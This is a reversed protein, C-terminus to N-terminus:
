TKSTADVIKGQKIEVKQGRHWMSLYIEKGNVEACPSQEYSEGIGDSWQGQTYEALIDLESQELERESYYTTEVYLKGDRFHFDAYGQNIVSSINSMEEPFYEAFNDNCIAIHEVEQAYYEYDHTVVDDNDYEKKNYNLKAEGIIKITITNNREFFEELAKSDPPTWKKGDMGITKMKMKSVYKEACDDCILASYTTTGPCMDFKRSGYSFIFQIEGGDHPQNYDWNNAACELQKECFLCPKTESM